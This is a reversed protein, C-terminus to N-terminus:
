LVTWWGSFDTMLIAYRFMMTAFEQRTAHRNPNFQNGSGNDINNNNIWTVYASYWADSRVDTFNNQRSDNNNARRGNELRFILASIEARTLNGQTNFRNNGVGEMIGNAFVFQIGESYWRGDAVDNFNHRTAMAPSAIGLIMVIALLFTIARKTFKQM